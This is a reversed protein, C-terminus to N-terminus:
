LHQISYGDNRNMLIKEYLLYNLYKCCKTVYTSEHIEKLYNMYKSINKCPDRYYEVNKKIYSEINSCSMEAVANPSM